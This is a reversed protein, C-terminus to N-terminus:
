VVFTCLITRDPRDFMLFAFVGGASALPTEQSDQAKAGLRVKPM